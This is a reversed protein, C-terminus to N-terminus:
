GARKSNNTQRVKKKPATCSDEQQEVKKRGIDRKKAPKTPTKGSQKRKKGGDVKDDEGESDEADSPLYQVDEHLDDKNITAGAAKAEAPTVKIDRLHWSTVLYDLEDNSQDQDERTLSVHIRLNRDNRNTLGTRHYLAHSMVVAKGVKVTIPVIHPQNGRIKLIDLNIEKELPIILFQSKEDDPRGDNAANTAGTYDQHMWCPKWQLDTRGKPPERTHLLCVKASRLEKFQRMCFQLLFNNMWM